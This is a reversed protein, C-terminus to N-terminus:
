FHLLIELFSMDSQIKVLWCCDRGVSIIRFDDYSSWTYFNFVFFTVVSFTGLYSVTLTSLFSVKSCNM